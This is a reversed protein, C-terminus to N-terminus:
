FVHKYNLLKYIRQFLVNTTIHSAKMWGNSNRRKM